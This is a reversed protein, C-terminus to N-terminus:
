VENWARPVAEHLEEPYEMDVELICPINEWNEMERETMWKFGGVPLPECM